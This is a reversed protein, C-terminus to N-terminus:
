YHCLLPMTCTNNTDVNWEWFVLFTSSCCILLVSAETPHLFQFQVLMFNLKNWLKNFFCMSLLPLYYKVIHQFPKLKQKIEKYIIKRNWKIFFSIKWCRCNLHHCNHHHTSMNCLAFWKNICITSAPFASQGSRRRFSGSTHLHSCLM